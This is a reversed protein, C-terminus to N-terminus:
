IQEDKFDSRCVSVLSDLKQKLEEAELRGLGAAGLTKCLDGSFAARLVPTKVSFPHGITGFFVFGLLFSGLFQPNKGWLGALKAALPWNKRGLNM